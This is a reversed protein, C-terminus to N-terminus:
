HIREIVFLIIFSGQILYFMDVLNRFHLNKYYIPGQVLVFNFKTMACILVKNDTPCM